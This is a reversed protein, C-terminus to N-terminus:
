LGCWSALRNQVSQENTQVTEDIAVGPTSSRPVTSTKTQTTGERWTIKPAIVSRKADIRDKFRSLDALMNRLEVELARTPRFGLKRLNDHDVEYFHEQAEVRPDAIPQIEVELGFSNGVKKVSDALQYVSYVEDIQNFVRYDGREPPNEVAITLCQMSDTLSIFARKQQGTGYPTLPYGIVAQACYRNIITGFAEDFDFRTLLSDDDIDGTRTGYVVGQMIDTSSLGWIKCAFMVNVSDHVKSLHYFSGPQRPFPLYDKRGRYEIEFFGEPIPLNPTGYEGMTGLKVLHSAPAHERMAFLLNLTGLVNNHQTYIAHKRDMMSYPASPQEALHVIADPHSEEVFKSLFDYDLISGQKFSIEYGCRSKAARLRKTMDLIPTASWSGIEEVNRRRDFNDFGFVQHGRSSLRLALTWGLYGDIGCILIRSTTRPEM